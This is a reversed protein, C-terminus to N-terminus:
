RVASAHCQAQHPTADADTDSAAVPTRAGVAAIRRSLRKARRERKAKKKACQCARVEKERERERERAKERKRGGRKRAHDPQGRAAAEERRTAPVTAM